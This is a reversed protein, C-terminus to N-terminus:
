IYIESTIGSIMSAVVFIFANQDWLEESNDNEDIFSEPEATDIEPVVM